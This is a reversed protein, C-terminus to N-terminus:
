KGLWLGGVATSYDLRHTDTASIKFKRMMTRTVLCLMAEKTDTM